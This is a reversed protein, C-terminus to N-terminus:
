IKRPQHFYGYHEEQISKQCKHYAIQNTEQLNHDFVLLYLYHNHLSLHQIWHLNKNSNFLGISKKEEGISQNNKNTSIVQNSKQDYKYFLKGTVGACGSLGM